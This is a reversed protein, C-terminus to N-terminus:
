VKFISLGLTKMRDINRKPPINTIHAWSRGTMIDCITTTSIPYRKSIAGLSEGSKRLAVIELVQESTLKSQTNKEGFHSHHLKDFAHKINESKTVWELNDVCNNYKNGDKHNVEPKNHINPIFTIAVLRHITKREYKGNGIALDVALYYGLSFPKLCKGKKNYINGNTDISYGKYNPIEKIM